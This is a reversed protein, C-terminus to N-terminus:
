FHHISELRVAPRPSKPSRQMEQGSHCIGTERWHMRHTQDKHFVMSLFNGETRGECKAKKEWKLKKRNVKPGERETGGYSELAWVCVGFLEM